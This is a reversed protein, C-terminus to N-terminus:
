ADRRRLAIVALGLLVAAYGCLVAFGAWPTLPYYGNAPTYAGAVQPYRVLTQQIAFGAAPTVRLLWEMVGAPLLMPMAAAFFYPVVIGAILATVTAAGHRLIAGLGVALVATLALVAATGAVVRVGTLASVPLVFNGNSRLLREGFTMAAASGAVGAVFTVTGIVIAKAALVQGRQPHAAFTVRILGRRYEATMFLAAVVLVAILAAFVGQLTSEPATGDGGGAAGAVYPAIDGSGTVTLVGGARGFGSVPAVGGAQGAGAQSGGTGALGAAVGGVPGAAWRRGPQQGRLRVHDFRGTAQTSEGAGTAGTISQSITRSTGPSTAFLGAQATGTLGSLHVTGLVTWRRGDASDYGTLTRGARTLRLWRPAAASPAGPLGAIDGTYDYQMRVGHGAAALVAAYPAGQRTSAAIIIGAKAWPQLGPRGTLSALRATISGDGPLPQHAFYYSDQVAEGGPGLPISCGQGVTVPGNPTVQGGCSSHNLLAIGVTVLAAILMGIVWGRVTRFKIWEARLLQGFGAGREQRPGKGTQRRAVTPTSM